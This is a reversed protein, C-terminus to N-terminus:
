LANNIEKLWFALYPRRHAYQAADEAFDEAFKEKEIKAAIPCPPSPDKRAKRLDNDIKFRCRGDDCPLMPRASKGIIKELEGVIPSWLDTQAIWCSRKRVLEEAFDAPMMIQAYILTEMSSALNGHAFMLHMKDRFILARHRIAQSRLALSLDLTVVVFDGTVGQAYGTFDPLLPMPKYNRNEVAKQLIAGFVSLKTQIALFTEAVFEEMMPHDFDLCARLFKALDRLSMAFSFTTMYCIPLHRRFDDQHSSEMEAFMKAQLEEVTSMEGANIGEWVEWNRLDDVRSSRAWVIHNRLSCIVERMLIPATATFNLMLFENVPVDMKMIDEFKSSTDNPRSVKWAKEIQGVSGCSELQIKIKSKSIMKM